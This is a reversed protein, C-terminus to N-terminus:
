RAGRSDALAAMALAAMLGRTRSRPPSHQAAGRLEATYREAARAREAADSEIRALSLPGRNLWRTRREARDDILAAKRDRRRQSWPRLKRRSAPVHGAFNMSGSGRGCSVLRLLTTATVNTPGPM